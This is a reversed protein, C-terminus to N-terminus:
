GAGVGDPPPFTFHSWHRLLYDAVAEASPPDLPLPHCLWPVPRPPPLPGVWLAVPARPGDREALVVKPVPLSKGGEVLCCGGDPFADAVMRYWAWWPLAGFATAGEKGALIAVRAGRGLRATDSGPREATVAHHTWKVVAVPHVRQAVAELLM